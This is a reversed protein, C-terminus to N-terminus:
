YPAYKFYEYDNRALTVLSDTNGRSDSVVVALKYLGSPEVLGREDLISDTSHQPLDLRSIAIRDLSLSSQSLQRFNKTLKGENWQYVVANLRRGLCVLSDSYLDIQQSKSLSRSLESELFVLEELLRDRERWQNIYNKLFMSGTVILGLLISTLAMAVILEVLTVGKSNEFCKINM